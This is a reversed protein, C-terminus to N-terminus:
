SAQRLPTAAPRRGCTPGVATSFGGLPTRFRVASPRLACRQQALCERLHEPRAGSPGPASM